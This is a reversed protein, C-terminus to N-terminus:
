KKAHVSSAGSEDKSLVNPEGVYQVNSAGSARASLKEIPLVIITSAGSAAVTAEQVTLEQANLTSAGSADATLTSVSGSTVNLSSAGSLDVDLSDGELGSITGQTAGSGRYKKLHISSAKVVIPNNTSYSETTHIVLRGDIVQTDIIELLNEDASISLSPDSGLSVELTVSGSVDVSDFEDIIRDETSLVGNGTI